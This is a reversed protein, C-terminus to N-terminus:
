LTITRRGDVRNEARQQVVRRGGVFAVLEGIRCGSRGARWGRVVGVGWLGGM